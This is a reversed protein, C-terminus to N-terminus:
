IQKKQFLAIAALLCCASLGITILVPATVDSATKVGAILDLNVSGLTVPLYEALKPFASGVYLLLIVGGSLIMTAYSQNALVSALTIVALIFSILLWLCFMAAFFNEPQQEPFLYQTYGWFIGVSLWYASTWIVEEATFKSLVFAPRSLGKSFMLAATGRQIEQVINASFLFVVLIMVTQNMNKFFQAYADIYTPEPIMFEIGLDMGQFIEPMIKALVPSLMAFVLLVCGLIFLKYNKWQEVLEKKTFILYRKM